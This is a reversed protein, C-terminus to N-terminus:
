AAPVGGGDVLLLLRMGANNAKNAKMARYGRNASEGYLKAPVVTDEGIVAASAYALLDLEETYAYRETNIRNPFTISYQNGTKLGVQDKSNLIAASNVTDADAAVSRTPRNTDAENVVFKNISANDASYVVFIPSNLDTLPAGTDKNVPSQVVFWSFLPAVETTDEWAFFSIGHNTVVLQYSLTSGSDYQKNQVDRTIFGAGASPTQPTWQSGLQGMINLGTTDTSNNGPFASVGGADSIQAPNAIAVRIRGGGGASAALLDVLIRYPQAAHVPNVNATSEFVFKGAGATLAFDGGSAPLVQTLGAAKFDAFLATTLAALTQLKSRKYIKGAM